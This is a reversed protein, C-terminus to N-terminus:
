KLIEYEEINIMYHGEIVEITGIVYLYKANEFLKVNMLLSGNLRLYYIRNGDDLGWVRVAPNTKGNSEPYSLLKPHGIITKTQLVYQYVIVALLFCLLLITFGAIKNRTKM